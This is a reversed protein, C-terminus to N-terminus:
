AGDDERERPPFCVMEGAIPLADLKISIGGNAVEWASGIRTYFTKRDRGEGVERTVYVALDPKRGQAM